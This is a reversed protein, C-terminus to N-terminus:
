SKGCGKKRFLLSKVFLAETSDRITSHDQGELIIKNVNLKWIIYKPDKYCTYNKLFNFFVASWLDRTRNNIDTLTTKSYCRAHIKQNFRWSAAASINSNDVIPSQDNEVSYLPNTRVQFPYWFDWKKGLFDFHEM